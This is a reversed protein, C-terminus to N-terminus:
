TRCNNNGKNKGTEYTEAKETECINKINKEVNTVEKLELYTNIDGTQKFTNWAMQKIM